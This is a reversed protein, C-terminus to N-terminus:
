HDDDASVSTMLQVNGAQHYVEVPEGTWGDLDVPVWPEVLVSLDIRPDTEDAAPLVVIQVRTPAPGHDGQCLAETVIDVLAAVDGHAWSPLESPCRTTVQAGTDRLTRLARRVEPAGGLQLDERLIREVDAARARVRPDRPDLRGEAVGDVLPRVTDSVARLRDQVLRRTESEVEATLVSQAVEEEALSAQRGVRGLAGRLALGSVLGFTTAVVVLLLDEVLHPHHDGSTTLVGVPTVIAFAAVAEIRHRFIALLYLILAITVLSVGFLGRGVTLAGAQPATTAVAVALLALAVGAAPPCGWRAFAFGTVTVTMTAVVISLTLAPHALYPWLLVTQVLLSLAVPVLVVVCTRLLENLTDPQWAWHLSGHSAYPVRWRLTVRTGRGVVSRIEASGGATAMREHISSRLGRSGRAAARREAAEVDFGVGRDTITVEIGGHARSVRVTAEDTGSHRSVNRLAEATARAIASRVHGPVRVADPGAVTVALGPPVTARLMEGLTAEGGRTSDETLLDTADLAERLEDIQTSVAGTSVDAREMALAQLGHLVTDHVYRGSAAVARRHAEEAVAAQRRERRVAAAVDATTMVVRMGQSLLVAAGTLAALSVGAALAHRLAMEPAMPARLPTILLPALLVGGVAAAMEHRTRAALALYPGILYLSQLPWWVSAVSRPPDLPALAVAGVVWTLCILLRALGDLRGLWLALTAGLLALVLLGVPLAASPRAQLVQGMPHLQSALLAVSLSVTAARVLTRRGQLWPHAGKLPFTATAVM